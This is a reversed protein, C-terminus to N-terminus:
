QVFKYHVWVNGVTNVNKLVIEVSNLYYVESKYTTYGGGVVAGAPTPTLLGISNDTSLTWCNIMPLPILRSGTNRYVELTDTSVSDYVTFTMFAYKGGENIWISPSANTLYVTGSDQHPYYYANPLQAIVSDIAWHIANGIAATIMNSVETSDFGRIASLHSNATNQNNSTAGSSSINAQYSNISRLLGTAVNVTDLELILNNNLGLLSAQLELQIWGNSTDPHVTSTNTVIQKQISANSTDPMSVGSKISAIIVPLYTHQTDQKFGVIKYHNYNGGVTDPVLIYEQAKIVPIFLLMFFLSLLLKKM